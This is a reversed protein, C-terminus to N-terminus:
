VERVIGCGRREACIPLGHELLNHTTDAFAGEDFGRQLNVITAVYGNPVCKIGVKLVPWEIGWPLSRACSSYASKHKKQLRTIRSQLKTLIPFRTMNPGKTDMKAAVCSVLTCDRRSPRSYARETSIPSSQQIPPLVVMMGPTVIPFPHVIPLLETTVLDIGSKETAIPDGALTILVTSATGSRSQCSLGSLVLFIDYFCAALTRTQRCSSLRVRTSVFM